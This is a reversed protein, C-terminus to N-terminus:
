NLYIDNGDVDYPDITFTFYTYEVDFVLPNIMLVRSVNEFLNYSFDSYDNDFLVISLLESIEETSETSTYENYGTLKKADKIKTKFSFSIEESYFNDVDFDFISVDFIIANHFNILKIKKIADYIKKIDSKCLYLKGKSVKLNKFNLIHSFLVENYEQSTLSVYKSFEELLGEVFDYIIYKAYSLDNPNEMTWFIKGEKYDPKLIIGNFDYSEDLFNTYFLETIKKLDSM